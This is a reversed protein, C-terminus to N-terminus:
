KNLENIRDRIAAKIEEAPILSISKQYWDIALKKNGTREQLDAMLLTAEVNDPALKLVTNLRSIGKDYQGSLLSGRVLMLQAYLNTSDKALVERIKAIGEMPNASVNGFLYCAGLGVRASDNDPNINLSREFLDKAQLAKWQRRTPNEDSQLNDLFLRAAFTLSKESKELRAAEAEYWAYPEFIGVTDRWFHAMDHYVALQGAEDTVKRAQLLAFRNKQAETLQGKALALITDISISAQGASADM